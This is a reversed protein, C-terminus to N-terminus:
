QRRPRYPQRIPLEPESSRAVFMDRREYQSLKQVDLRRLVDFDPECKVGSTITINQIIKPPEEPMYVARPWLQYTFGAVILLAVSFRLVRRKWMWSAGMAPRPKEEFKSLM